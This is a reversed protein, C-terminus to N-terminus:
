GPKALGSNERKGRCRKQFIGPYIKTQRRINVLGNEKAAPSVRTSFFEPYLSMEM